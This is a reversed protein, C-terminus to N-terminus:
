LNILKIKRKLSDTKAKMSKERKKDTKLKM